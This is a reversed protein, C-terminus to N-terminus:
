LYCKKMRVQKYPALKRWRTLFSLGYTCKFIFNGKLYLFPSLTGWFCPSLQSDVTLFVPSFCPFEGTRGRYQRSLVSARPQQAVLPHFPLFSHTWLMLWSQDAASTPIVDWMCPLLSERVTFSVLFIEAVKRDGAHKAVPFSKIIIIAELVLATSFSREFSYICPKWTRGTNLLLVLAEAIQVSYCFCAFYFSHCLLAM